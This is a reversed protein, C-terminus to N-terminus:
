RGSERGLIRDLERDLEARVGAADLQALYKLYAPAGEEVLYAVERTIAEPLHCVPEADPDEATVIQEIFSQIRDNLRRLAEATATTM